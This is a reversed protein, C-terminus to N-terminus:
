FLMALNIMAQKTQNNTDNEYIESNKILEQKIYNYCSNYPRMNANNDIIIKKYIFFMIFSIINSEIINKNGIILTRYTINKQQFQEVKEWVHKVEHCTLLM